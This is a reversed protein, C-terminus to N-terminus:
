LQTKRQKAKALVYNKSTEKIESKLLEWNDLSDLNTRRMDFNNFLDDIENVYPTEELFSSKSKWYFNGWPKFDEFHLELLVPKHDSILNLHKCKLINLGLSERVYIRDIRATKHTFDVKHKNCKRLVDILQLNKPKFIRKVYTNRKNINPTRDISEEM